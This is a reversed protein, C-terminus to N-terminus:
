GGGDATRLSSREDCEIFCSTLPSYNVAKDFRFRRITCSERERETHKTHARRTVRRSNGMSYQCFLVPYERRVRVRYLSAPLAFIRQHNEPMKDESERGKGM